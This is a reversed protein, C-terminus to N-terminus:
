CGNLCGVDGTLVITSPSNFTNFDLFFVMRLIEIENEFVYTESTRAPDGQIYNASGFQYDNQSFIENQVTYNIGDRILAHGLDFGM